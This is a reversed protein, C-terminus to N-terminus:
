PLADLFDMIDSYVGTLDHKIKDRERVKLHKTKQGTKFVFPHSDPISNRRDNTSRLAAAMSPFQKAFPKTADLMVGFPIWKDDKGKRLMAGPLCEINLVDQFAGFVADNFSNQSALWGSRDSDVKNEATLLLQLAHQYNSGLLAKWGRWTRVKYSTRLIEGIQDFRPKSGVNILGLGQFVNKVEASLRYTAIGMQKPSLGRDVIREALTMGPAPLPQQCLEAAIGNKLYDDNSLFPILLSQIYPSTARVRQLAHFSSYLGINRCTLLFACLARQMSFSLRGRKAQSIAIPLLVQLEDPRAQRLAILWLEGQVYDHLVGRKLMSTVHRVILQSKSYNQFFASFADIHEPHTPLLKLAKNLITRSPGSRYLVFRLRSKDIIRLPRGGIANGLIKLAAHEAMGTEDPEQAASEAISPLTGLAETVDKAYSVKFKSGQPILSWRRCEMELVVAARRVEDETAALVRIDDVYRIYPIGAKDMAEDLPLLFIEALFDSAIPGQPIGHDVPIGRTECTWRCLCRRIMEWAESSGGSPSVVTQLAKHSITEYFAALDFHAIWHNGGALHRGLRLKFDHYTRRWSQLFFISDPKSNLCSSFVLRNEVARRRKFMQKAVQNAIAQLVIQDDLALLTLPRLLGSAKPLYIRIPSTPKWGGKLREHLLQLNAKRGPEYASYLHRFMQKHQLNNATTIRSWALDLNGFSILSAKSIM